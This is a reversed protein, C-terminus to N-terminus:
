VVLKTQTDRQIRDNNPLAGPSRTISMQLSGRQESGCRVEVPWRKKAGAVGLISGHRPVLSNRVAASMGRQEYNMMAVRISTSDLAHGERYSKHM